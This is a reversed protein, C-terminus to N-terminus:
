SVGNFGALVKLLRAFCASRQWVGAFCALSRESADHFRKVKVLRGFEQLINWLRSSKYLARFLRESGMWPAKGDRNPVKVQRLAYDENHEALLTNFHPARDTANSNKLGAEELFHSLLGLKSAGGQPDEFWEM